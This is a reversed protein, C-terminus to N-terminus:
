ILREEKRRGGERGKRKHVPIVARWRWGIM